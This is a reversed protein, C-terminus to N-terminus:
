LSPPRHRLSDVYERVIADLLQGQSIGDHDSLHEITAATEPALRYSRIVRLGAPTNIPITVASLHFVRRSPM